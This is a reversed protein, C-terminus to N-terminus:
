SFGGALLHFTVFSELPPLSKSSPPDMNGFVSLLVAAFLLLSQILVLLVMWSCILVLVCVCVGFTVSVMKFEDIRLFVSGFCGFFVKSGSTEVSGHGHKEGKQAGPQGEHRKREQLRRATALTALRRRQQLQPGFLRRKRQFSPPCRHISPSLITKSDNILQCSVRM